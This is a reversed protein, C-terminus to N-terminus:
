FDVPTLKTSGAKKFLSAIQAIHKRYLCIPFRGVGDFYCLPIQSLLVFCLDAPNRRREFTM